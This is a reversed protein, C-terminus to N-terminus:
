PWRYGGGGEEEEDDGADEYVVRIVTYLARGCRGCREDPDGEFSGESRTEDIVVIRGAGSGDPPLGCEPCRGGREELRKLRSRSFGV